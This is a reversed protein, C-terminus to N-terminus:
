DVESPSRNSRGKSSGVTSRQDVWARSFSSLCFSSSVTECCTLSKMRRKKLNSRNPSLNLYSFTLFACFAYAGGSFSISM